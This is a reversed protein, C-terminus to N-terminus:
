DERPEVPATGKWPVIAGRLAAYFLTRAPRTDFEEPMVGALQPEPRQEPAAGEVWWKAKEVEIAISHGGILRGASVHAPVWFSLIRPTTRVAYPHTHISPESPTRQVVPERKPGPPPGLPRRRGGAITCGAALSAIVICVPILTKM